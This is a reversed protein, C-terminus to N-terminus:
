QQNEGPLVAGVVIEGEHVFFKQNQMEETIMRWCRDISIKVGPHIFGTCTISSIFNAEKFSELTNRLSAIVAALESKKVMYEKIKTINKYAGLDNEEKIKKTFVEVYSEAQALKQKLANKQEKISLAKAKDEEKAEEDTKEELMKWNKLVVVEQQPHKDSGLTRATIQEGALVSGGIIAARQGKMFISKEAKVKSNLIIDCTLNGGCIVTANEIFKVAIDGGATIKATNMGTIGGVIVINGGATLEAGEVLGKVYIDKQANVKFGELVNEAININGNFSINGTKLSVNERVTYAEEVYVKKQKFYVCGDREARLETKDETLRVNNGAEVAAPKGVKALIAGGYINTGDSGIKPLVINSLVEGEYVNKILGLERYDVSGDEREMPGSSDPNFTLTYHGDEGDVAKNGVAVKQWQFYNKNLCFYKIDEAMIGYKIGSKALFALVDAEEVAVGENAEIDRLRVYASLQDSTVKLEFEPKKIPPAPGTKAPGANAADSKDM